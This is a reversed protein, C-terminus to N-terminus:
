RKEFLRSYIEEVSSNAIILEIRKNHSTLGTVISIQNQSIKLQKQLIKILESNAKGKNPSNLLEICLQSDDMKISQTNSDPKV